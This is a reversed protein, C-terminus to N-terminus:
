PGFAILEQSDGFYAFVKDGAAAVWYQTNDAAKITTFTIYGKEGGTQPDIGALATSETIAYLTNNSMVINSLCRATYLWIPAGTRVDLAYLEAPEGWFHGDSLIIMSNTLIPWHSTPRALKMQWVTKGSSRDIASLSDRTGWYDASPSRFMMYTNDAAKMRSQGKLTGDLADYARVVQETKGFSSETSYAWIEKGMPYLWYGTHGPLEGPTQWLLKGDSLDYARINWNVAIFLRDQDTALSHENPLDTVQWELQGTTADLVQLRLKPWGLSHDVFFVHKETALVGAPMDYIPILLGGRRWLERLPLGRRAMQRSETPTLPTPSWTPVVPPECSQLLVMVAVAAVAM